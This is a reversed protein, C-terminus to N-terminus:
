WKELQKILSHIEYKCHQGPQTMVSILLWLPVLVISSPLIKNEYDKQTPPYFKWFGSLYSVNDWQKATQLLQCGETDPKAAVLLPQVEHLIRSRFVVGSTSIPRCKQRTNEYRTQSIKRWVVNQNFRSKNPFIYDQYSRVNCKWFSFFRLTRESGISYLDRKIKFFLLEVPCILTQLKYIHKYRVNIKTPNNVFTFWLDLNSMYSTVSYKQKIEYEQTHRFFIFPALPRFLPTRRRSTNLVIMKGM